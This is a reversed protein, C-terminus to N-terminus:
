IEIVNDDNSINIISNNILLDSIPKKAFEENSDSIPSLMINNTAIPIAKIM